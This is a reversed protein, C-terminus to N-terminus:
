HCWGGRGVMSIKLARRLAESDWSKMALLEEDSFDPIGNNSKQIEEEQDEEHTKDEPYDGKIANHRVRIRKPTVPESLKLVGGSYSRSQKRPKPDSFSNVLPSEGVADRFSAVINDLDINGGLKAAADYFRAIGAFVLAKAHDYFEEESGEVYIPEIVSYDTVLNELHCAQGQTLGLPGFFAAHYFRSIAVPFKARSLVKRQYKALFERMGDDKISEILPDKVEVELQPDHLKVALPDQGLMEKAREVVKQISIDACNRPNGNFVLEKKLGYALAAFGRMGDKDLAPSMKGGYSLTEVTDVLGHERIQSVLWKADDMRVNLPKSFGGAVIFSTRFPWKRVTTMFEEFRGMHDRMGEDTIAIHPLSSDLGSADQLFDRQFNDGFAYRGHSNEVSM